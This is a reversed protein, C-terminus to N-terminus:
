FRFPCMPVSVLCCPIHQFYICLYFAQDALLSPRPLLITLPTDSLASSGQFHPSPDTKFHLPVSTVVAVTAEVTAETVHTPSPPPLTSM